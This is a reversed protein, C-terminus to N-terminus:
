EFGSTILKVPRNDLWRGSFIGLCFGIIHASYAVGVEGGAAYFLVSHFAQFVFWFALYLWSPIETFSGPMVIKIRSRPFLVVYAGMLASISGSAGVSLSESHRHLLSYILGTFVGYLIYVLLYQLHGFREELRPGFIGLFYMNGILHIWGAHLFQSTILSPDVLNELVRKPMLAYMEFFKATPHGYLSYLLAVLCSFIIALNSLFKGGKADTGFPFIFTGFGYGVTSLQKSFKQVAFWDEKERLEQIIARGLAEIDVAIEDKDEPQVSKLKGPGAWIGHCKSCTELLIGKLNHNIYQMEMKMGCKPCSKNGSEYGSTSAFFSLNIAKCSKKIGDLFSYYENNDDFWIGKCEFCIDVVLADYTVKNLSVKCIPCNLTREM